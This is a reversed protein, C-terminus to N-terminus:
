DEQEVIDMVFTDFMIYDNLERPDKFDLELEVILSAIQEKQNESLDRLIAIANGYAWSNYNDLIIKLFDTNTNM